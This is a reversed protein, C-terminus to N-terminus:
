SDQRSFYARGGENHDEVKMDSGLWDMPFKLRCVPCGEKDKRQCYEPSCWHLMVKNIKKGYRTKFNIVHQMFFYDQHFIKDEPPPKHIDQGHLGPWHLCNPNSHVRTIGLMNCSFDIVKAGAAGM